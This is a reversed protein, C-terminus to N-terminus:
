DGRGSDDARAQLVKTDVAMNSLYATDPPPPLTPTAM